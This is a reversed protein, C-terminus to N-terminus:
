TYKKEKNDELAQTYGAIYSRKAIYRNSGQEYDDSWSDALKEIEDKKM